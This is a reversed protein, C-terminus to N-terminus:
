APTLPLFSRSVVYRYDCALKTLSVLSRVYLGHVGTGQGDWLQVNSWWEPTFQFGQQSWACYFQDGLTGQDVSKGIDSIEDPSVQTVLGFDVVCIRRKEIHVLTNFQSIDGYLIGFRALSTFFFHALLDICWPVKETSPIDVLRPWEYYDMEIRDANSSHVRPILIDRSASDKWHKYLRIQMKAEHELDYELLACKAWTRITNDRVVSRIQSLHRVDKQLRDRRLRKVLRRHEVTCTAVTGSLKGFDRGNSQAMKRSCISDPMMKYYIWTMYKLM